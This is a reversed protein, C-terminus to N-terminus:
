VMARLTPRLGVWIKQDFICFVEEPSEVGELEVVVSEYQKYNSADRYLYNVEFKM